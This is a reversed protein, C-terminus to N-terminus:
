YLRRSNHYTNQWYSVNLNAVQVTQGPVPAHVMKGGGIYIGVHSVSSGNTVFTIIDGAQMNNYSVSKGMGSLGSATPRGFTIGAQKHAWYVLGSCDFSNPGTAGWVYPSGQKSLAYNAIAIGIDSDGEPTVPTNSGGGTDPTSPPPTPTSPKPNPIAGTIGDVKSDNSAKAFAALADDIKETTNANALAEKEKALADANLKAYNELYAAQLSEQSARSAALNTLATAATAKQMEIEKKTDALERILTKDYSTLEEVSSLRSYMDSFDSAGFIFEIFSNSNIYSQMTYMRERLKTEKNTLNTELSAISNNLYAIESEKTAIDTSLTKLLEEVKTIDNKSAEAEKKTKDISADLAENKEKLYSNFEKCVAEDNRSLTSSTCIRKYKDEQGQFDTAHISTFSAIMTILLCSTIVIPIIKKM